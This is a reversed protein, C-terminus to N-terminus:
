SEFPVCKVKCSQEEIIHEATIVALVEDNNNTVIIEKYKNSGVTLNEKNIGFLTSIDVNLIKALNLIDVDTILKKGSIMRSLMQDTYGAKDAVAKQVLGQRKIEAKIYPGCISQLM